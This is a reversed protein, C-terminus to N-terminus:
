KEVGILNDDEDFYFKAHFYPLISFKSCRLVSIAQPFYPEGEHVHQLVFEFGSEGLAMIREKDTM